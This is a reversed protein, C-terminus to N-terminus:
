QGLSEQSPRSIVVLVPTASTFGAGNYVYAAGHANTFNTQVFIYGNFTAGAAAATLIESLNVLYTKGSNLVGATLGSGPSSAVTTYTKVTGSNDFLTFTLSGNQATALSPSGLPDTTTNSVAIGTNYGGGVTAFPILLTSAAAPFQVVVPPTTAPVLALQYRPIQGTNIAALVGGTSSLASGTPAMTVQATVATAPLPATGGTISTCAVWVVDVSSQSVPTTFGVLITNASTNLVGLSGVTVAPTGASANGSTDTLIANCGGISVGAPINNFQVLVQTSSATSPPFVGGGNFQSSSKWLDQYNEEIRLVFSTKTGVGLLNYVAAGGVTVGAPLLASSVATPLSVPLSIKDATIGPLISTIVDQSGPSAASTPSGISYGAGPTSTLIASIKSLTTGNLSLLVGKLDFVGVDGPAWTIVGGTATGNTSLPIPISGGQNSTANLIPPNLITAVTTATGCSFKNTGVFAPNSAATPCEIHLSPAVGTGGPFATGSTIPVGFSISLIGISMINPFSPAASSPAPLLTAGTANTCTVRVTNNGPVGGETGDPGAAPPETHGTSTGRTTAGLPVSLECQVTTPAQAFAACSLALMIGMLLMPMFVRKFLM